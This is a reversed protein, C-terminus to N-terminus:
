IFFVSLINKKGLIYKALISVMHLESWGIVDQGLRCIDLSVTGGQRKLYVMLTASGSVIVLGERVILRQLHRSGATSGENGLRHCVTEERKTDVNRRWEFGAHTNRLLDTIHWHVSFFLYLPCMSLSKLIVDRRRCGGESM